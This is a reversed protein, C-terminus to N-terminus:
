RTLDNVAKGNWFEFNGHSFADLLSKSESYQKLFPLHRQRIALPLKSYFCAVLSSFAKEAGSIEGHCEICLILVNDPNRAHEPFIRTELIHHAILKEPLDAKGCAECVCGRDQKIRQRLKQDAKTPKYTKVLRVQNMLPMIHTQSLIDLSGLDTITDLPRQGKGRTEAPTLGLFLM